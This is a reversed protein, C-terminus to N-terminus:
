LVYTYANQVHQFQMHDCKINDLKTFISLLVVDLNWHLLYGINCVICTYSIYRPYPKAYTM